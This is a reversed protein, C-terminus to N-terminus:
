MLQELLAFVLLGREPFHFMPIRLELSGSLSFITSRPNSFRRCGQLLLAALLGPEQTVFVLIAPKSVKVGQPM